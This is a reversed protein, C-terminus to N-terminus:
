SINSLSRELLKAIARQSLGHLQCIQITVREEIGLEQYPM